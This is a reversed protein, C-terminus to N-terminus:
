CGEFRRSRKFYLDVIFNVNDTVYPEEKEGFTRLKAVCGAEEFLKRLRLPCPWDVGGIYNVLNYGDVIVIFKKCTNKVMKERLLSGSRGKFLNLFPDVEDAGDIALNVVPHSDLDSLPIGLSLAQEHTIKSTPIGVIDKLKGQLLLEGIRNVAHKANSSTGLGLVMGFKVYEVAKYAVIKKLDDQTFIVFPSRSSSSLLLDADRWM